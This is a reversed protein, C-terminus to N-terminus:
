INRQSCVKHLNWISFGLARILDVHLCRLSPTSLASTASPPQTVPGPTAFFRRWDLIRRGAQAEAETKANQATEWSKPSPQFTVILGWSLYAKITEFLLTVKPPLQLTNRKKEPEELGGPPMSHGLLGKTLTSSCPPPCEPPQQCPQSLSHLPRQAFIPLVAFTLRSFSLM